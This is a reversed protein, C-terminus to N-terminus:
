QEKLTLHDIKEVLLKTSIKASYKDLAEVNVAWFDGDIFKKFNTEVLRQFISIDVDEEYKVLYNDANSLKLIETASSKHHFIPFIPRLSLISQFIKSATYHEETSGLVLLGKSQSLYYLIHLFPRREPIEVVVDEIGFEKAYKVVSNEKTSRTGIFYLKKRNDWQSDSKMGKITGFLAKLFMISKPLLAGAYLYVEENQADWPLKLDPLDIWHDNPDFGYPMGVHLIHKNKFNRDLVPQYYSTAVGSILSAKAVAYPELLKAVQNSLWAKSLFAGAADKPKVWPDIYDIGYLVKTSNYIQRAIVACYYSPIPVWLFSIERESILEIAKSKLQKFARIGIDGVLRNKNTVPNASVKIVETTPAVTKIFDYDLEEEYFDEDVTLIIPHYGYNPLFNSILRARHVGALNAPPWQPYIILINKM